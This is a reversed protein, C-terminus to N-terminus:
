KSAEDEMKELLAVVESNKYFISVYQFVTDIVYYVDKKKLDTKGKLLHWIENAISNLNVCKM